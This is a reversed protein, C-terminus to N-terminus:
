HSQETTILPPLHHLRPPWCTPDGYLEILEVLLEDLQEELEWLSPSLRRCDLTGEIQEVEFRRV